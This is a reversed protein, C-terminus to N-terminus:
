FSVDRGADKSREIDLGGKLRPARRLLDVLPARRRALRVWEDFALVVATDVGRRTIIQPGTRLAEEVVESLQNKAQQLQWARPKTNRM